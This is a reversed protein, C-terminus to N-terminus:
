IKSKIKQLKKTRILIKLINTDIGDTYDIHNNNIGIQIEMLRRNIQKIILDEEVGDLHYKIKSYTSFEKLNKIQIM